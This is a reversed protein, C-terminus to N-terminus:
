VARMRRDFTDTLVGAPLTTGIAVWDSNLSAYVYVRSLRPELDDQERAVKLLHDAGQNLTGKYAALEPIKKKVAQYEAEWEEDSAFINETAWTYQKPIESRERVREAEEASAVAMTMYLVGLIVMMLAKPSVVDRKM